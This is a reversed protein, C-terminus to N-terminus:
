KNEVSKHEGRPGRREPGGAIRLLNMTLVMVCLGFVFWHINEKLFNNFKKM